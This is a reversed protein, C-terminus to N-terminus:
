CNTTGYKSRMCACWVGDCHAETGGGSICNQYQDYCPLGGEPEFMDASVVAVNLALVTLLLAVLTFLRATRSM